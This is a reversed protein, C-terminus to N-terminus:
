MWVMMMVMMIAVLLSSSSIMVRRAASTELCDDVCCQAAAVVDFLIEGRGRCQYAGAIAADLAARQDDLWLLSALTSNPQRLHLRPQCSGDTSAPLRTFFLVVAADGGCEVISSAEIQEVLCAAPM